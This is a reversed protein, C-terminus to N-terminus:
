FATFHATFDKYYFNLRKKFVDQIDAHGINAFFCYMYHCSPSHSWSCQLVHLFVPNFNSLSCQCSWSGFSTSGLWPLLTFWTISEVFSFQRFWVYCNVPRSLKHYHSLLMDTLLHSGVQVKMPDPLHSQVHKMCVNQTIKWVSQASCICPTGSPIYQIKPFCKQPGNVTIYGFTGINL